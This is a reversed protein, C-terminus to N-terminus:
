ANGETWTFSGTCNVGNVVTGTIQINGSGSGIDIDAYVTGDALKLRIFTPTGAVHNANNQSYSSFTAVGASVTAAQSGFTLTALKTGAPTGLASPKTGNWFEATAAAGLATIHATLAANRGFLAITTTM